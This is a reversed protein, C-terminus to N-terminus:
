AAPRAAALVRRIADGCRKAAEVPPLAHLEDSFVEVGVPANCGIEDLIRVLQVVDIDGEDPLRRDHMTEVMLEGQAERPASNLQIALVRNGPLRRLADDDNTGRFHHWSDFLVGGNPRGARRVIEAATAADPIGTWPLFEIVAGLGHGAARDCVGAFREAALDLDVDGPFPHACNLVSGGITDAIAYFDDESRGLLADSGEAAGAGLSGTSLWNLLRELEAVALGHDDLLARIDANALGAANAREVDEPWLSLGRFGAASAAEIMERLPTHLLTGTCLVLDDRGLM